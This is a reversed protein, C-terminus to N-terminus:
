ATRRRGTRPAASRGRGARAAASRKAAPAALAQRYAVRVTARYTRLRKRADLDAWLRVVEVGIPRAAEEGAAKVADVVAADWSRGSSGTSEAIRVVEAPAAPSRRRPPM